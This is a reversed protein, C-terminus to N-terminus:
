SGGVSVWLTDTGIGCDSELKVGVKFDGNVRNWLTLVMSLDTKVGGELSGAM